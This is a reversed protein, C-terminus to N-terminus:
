SAGFERDIFRFLEDAEASELHDATGGTAGRGQGDPAAAGPATVDGAGGDRDGAWRSLLGGLRSAVMARTADDPETGTGLLTAELRDLQAALPTGGDEAAGTGALETGLHEALAAPSPCDFVLTTPLRLGTAANLRNRLEVGTLSTFGLDLFGRDPAVAGATGLGLVAAAHEQVSRLLVRRREGAGLGTLRRVLPAEDPGAADAPAPARRATAQRRPRDGPLAPRPVLVDGGRVALREEGALVARHLADLPVASGDVDVLTLRGPNEAQASRVGEWVPVAAPARVDVGAGTTVAGRTVVALRAGAFREQAVWERVVGPAGDGAPATGEGAPGAYVVAVDPADPARGGLAGLDDFSEAGWAEALGLVDEGVVACRRTGGEPPGPPTAPVWHERQGDGEAGVAAALEAERVPRTVLADVSLLPTGATDAVTMSLGGDGQPALRIRVATATAVPAHLSVGSWSFPLRVAGARDACALWAYLAADLLAPHVALRGTGAMDPLEVEAFVEEGRRRVSRLGRFAPEYALGAAAMRAYTGAFDVTEAGEPPWAGADEPGSVTGGAGLVGRAHCTWPGRGGRAYVSLGRRGEEQPGGVAVQVQAAGEAALVLPVELTLEELRGCGAEEGARLAMEVLASGPVAVRGLVTHDALWPQDRPSLRGTLLFGEAGPLPVAAGLLPHEAPELGMSAADRSGAAARADLWYRRHQFAYTPVDVRRAGSGAFVAAWDVEAGGAFAEAVSALLRERGGEGRRLSGVAVAAAGCDDATEAVSTVLAPHASAEVFVRFGEGLLVRVAEDFRVTRRANRYWYRGDLESTDLVGGTVTSCFPVASTRPTLGALGRELEAEIEEIHGCHSAYDVPLRRARVGEAECAALLEGVAEVDGSVVAAAPANVAAVSLRGSWAALREEVAQAPLGVSAMAGSGSLARLARSRVAVVRAGDALSLGGAVVAAAIEGQSHGVVASPVVGLARWTEALSVMVAWMVPQVTDVRDIWEPGEAGRVIDLLSWPVYPALAVACKDMWEAFVPSSDLLEVAMGAWQWGQGPFVFVARSDSGVVTGHTVGPAERGDALAALGRAVAARDAGLVVARHDFVARTTALSFGVDAPAAADRGEDEDTLPLLRAAQERVAAGSKASLVWPTAGGTHFVPTGAASQGDAGAEAATQEPAPETSEELIVHANTGSVGFSSVGARRARGTEPWAV